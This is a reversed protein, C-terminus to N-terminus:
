NKKYRDLMEEIMAVEAEFKGLPFQGIVDTMFTKATLGDAGEFTFVRDNAGLKVSLGMFEYADQWAKIREAVTQGWGQLGNLLVMEAVHSKSQAM